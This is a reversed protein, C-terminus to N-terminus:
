KSKSYALIRDITEDQPSVILANLKSKLQDYFLDLDADSEMDTVLPSMNNQLNASQKSTSTKTM